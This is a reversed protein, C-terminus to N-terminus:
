TEAEEIKAEITGEDEFGSVSYLILLPNHHLPFQIYPLLNDTCIRRRMMVVVAEDEVDGCVFLIVIWKKMEVM